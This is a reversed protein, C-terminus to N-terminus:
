QVVTFVLEPDTEPDPNNAGDVSKYDAVYLIDGVRKVTVMSIFSENKQIMEQKHEATLDTPVGLRWDNRGYELNTNYDEVIGSNEPIVYFSKYISKIVHGGKFEGQIVLESVEDETYLRGSDDCRAEDGSYLYISIMSHLTDEEIKLSVDYALGQEKDAEICESRYSGLYKSVVGQYAGNGGGGSIVIPGKKGSDSSEENNDGCSVMFGSIFLMSIIFTLYRKM